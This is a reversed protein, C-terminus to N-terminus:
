DARVIQVRGTCEARRGQFVGKGFDGIITGHQTAVLNGAQDLASITFEGSASVEGSKPFPQNSMDIISGRIVIPFGRPSNDSCGTLEDVQVQWRGDFAGSLESGLPLLGAAYGFAVGVTVVGAAALALQRRRGWGATRVSKVAAEAPMLRFAPVPESINKVRQAGLDTFAVSVKNKVQQYTTGSVCVGGEPALGELRAAVNVGDGFLNGGEVIVDGVNIGIRFRMQREPPM